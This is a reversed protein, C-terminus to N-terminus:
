YLYKSGAVSEALEDFVDNLNIEEGGSRANMHRPQINPLFDMECWPEKDLPAFMVLRQTDSNMLGGNWMAFLEDLNRPMGEPYDWVPTHEGDHAWELPHAADDTFLVIIDRKWIYPSPTKSWDSQMALALAELSSEPDDGGKTAKLSSLIDDFEEIGHELDMWDSNVEIAKAEPDKESPNRTGSDYFDRFAIIRGRAKSVPKFPDCIKEEITDMFNCVCDRVLEIVHDMGKTVDICFVVDVWIELGDNMM